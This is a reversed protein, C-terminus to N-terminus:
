RLKKTIQKIMMPFVNRQHIVLDNDMSVIKPIRIFKEASSWALLRASHDSEANMLFANPEFVQM